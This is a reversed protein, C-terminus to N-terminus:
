FYNSLLDYNILSHCILHLCLPTRFVLLMAVVLQGRHPTLWGLFSVSGLLTRPEIAWCCQFNWGRIRVSWVHLNVIYRLVNYQILCKLAFVRHYQSLYDIGTIQLLASQKQLSDLSIDIESKAFHLGFCHRRKCTWQRVEIETLYYTLYVATAALILYARTTRPLDSFKMGEKSPCLATLKWLFKHHLEMTFILLTQKLWFISSWCCYCCFSFKRLIALFCFVFNWILKFM